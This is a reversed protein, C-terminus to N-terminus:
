YASSSIILLYCFVVVDIYVNGLGGVVRVRGGLQQEEERAPRAHMARVVLQLRILERLLPEEDHHRVLVDM